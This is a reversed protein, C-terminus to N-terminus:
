FILDQNSNILYPFEWFLLIDSVYPCKTHFWHLRPTFLVVIILFINGGFNIFIHHRAYSSWLFYKIFFTTTEDDWKISNHRAPTAVNFVSFRHPSAKCCSFSAHWLVLIVYLIHILSFSNEHNGITIAYMLRFVFKIYFYKCKYSCESFM